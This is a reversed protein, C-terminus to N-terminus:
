LSRGEGTELLFKLIVPSEHGHIEYHEGFTLQGLGCNQDSPDEESVTSLRYSSCMYSLFRNRRLQARGKYKCPHVAAKGKHYKFGYREVLKASGGGVHSSDYLSEETNRFVKTLRFPHDQLGYKNVLEAQQVKINAKWPNAEHATGLKEDSYGNSSPPTPPKKPPRSLRRLREYEELPPDRVEDIIYSIPRVWRDRLYRPEERIHQYDWDIWDQVMDKLEGVGIDEIRVPPVGLRERPVASGGGSSSDRENWFPVPDDPGSPDPKTFVQLPEIALETWALNLMDKSESFLVWGCDEVDNQEHEIPWPEDAWGM